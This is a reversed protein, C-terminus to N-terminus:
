RQESTKELVIDANNFVSVTPDRTGLTMPDRTGLEEM